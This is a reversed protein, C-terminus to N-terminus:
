QGCLGSVQIGHELQRNRVGWLNTAKTKVGRLGTLLEKGHSCGGQKLDEKGRQGGRVQGGATRQGM